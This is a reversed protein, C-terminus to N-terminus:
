VKGLMLTQLYKGGAPLFVTKFATVRRKANALGAYSDTIQIVDYVQQGCNPHIEIYGNITEMDFRRLLVEGRRSVEDVSDLNSDEATLFSAYCKKIDNYDFCNVILPQNAASGRGEMRIHNYDPRKTKYRGTVIPHMGDIQPASYSYLPMDDPLPNVLYATDAEIFLRNPIFSLLKNIANDGTTGPNIIFDPCFNNTLESASVIELKLGARALIFALIERVSTDAADGNWHFQQKATWRCVNNWGNAAYLVLKSTGGDSVYEYAQLTYSQVGGTENGAATIYGYSFNLRCGIDLPPPLSAFKEDNNVLEIILMSEPGQTEQVLSQIDSTMDLEKEALPARWVGNACSLWCHTDDHAIALGYQSSLNFPQPEHWLNDAFEGVTHTSFPQSYAESGSYKEIYFCRFIDTKDLFAHHYSFSGDSPAEALTQLEGWSGTPLKGGDGYIISWLRYGGASDKGTVFLKWDSDYVVSVGSLNGTTKNWASKTQWQGNVLKKVYLTSQDAFFLALDGNAKYAVSIGNIATTPSYDVLQAASWTGGYDASAILQIKRDGKILFVSVNAGLATSAVIVVNYQSTYTWADFISNENPNIIRQIYLKRSDSPPTIRARILSGDGALTLAHFYEEETGNYLRRWDLRTVGNVKNSAELKVYPILSSQKQTKLLTDTLIRM